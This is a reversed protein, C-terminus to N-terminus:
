RKRDIKGLFGIKTAMFLVLAEKKKTRPQSTALQDTINLTCNKMMNDKKACKGVTRFPENTLM